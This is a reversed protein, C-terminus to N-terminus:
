GYIWQEPLKAEFNAGAVLAGPREVNAVVGRLRKAAKPFMLDLGDRDPYERAIERGAYRCPANQGEVVVM